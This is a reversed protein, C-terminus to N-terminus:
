LVEKKVILKNEKIELVKFRDGPAIAPGENVVQWYIGNVKQQANGQIETEATFTNGIIKDVLIPTNQINKRIYKKSVHNGILLLVTGLGAAVMVQYQFELTFGLLWAFVFAVALWSLLIDSTAIDFAVLLVVLVLWIWNM